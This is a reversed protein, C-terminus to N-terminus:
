DNKYVPLTALKEPQCWICNYYFRMSDTDSPTIVFDYYSKDELGMIIGNSCAISSDKKFNNCSILGLLIMIGIFQNM